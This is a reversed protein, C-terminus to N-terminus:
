PLAGEGRLKQLHTTLIAPDVAESPAARHQVVEGARHQAVESKTIKLTKATAGAALMAFVAGLAIFRSM